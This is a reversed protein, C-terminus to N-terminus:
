AAHPGVHAPCCAMRRERAAPASVYFTGGPRTSTPSKRDYSAAGGSPCASSPPESKQLEAAGASSIALSASASSDTAQPDEFDIVKWTWGDEDTKVRHEVDAWLAVSVAEGTMVRPLDETKEVRPPASPCCCCKGVAPHPVQGKQRWRLTVKQPADFRTVTPQRRSSTEEGNDDSVDIHDWKCHDIM